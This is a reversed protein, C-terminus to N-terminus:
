KEIRDTTHGEDPEEHLQLVNSKGVNFIHQTMCSSTFCARDGPNLLPCFCGDNVESKKFSANDFQRLTLNPLTLNGFKKQDIM